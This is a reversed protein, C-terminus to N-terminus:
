LSLTDIQYEDEEEETEPLFTLTAPEDTIIHLRNGYDNGKLDFAIDWEPIKNGEEITQVGIMWGASRGRMKLADAGCSYIGTVIVGVDKATELKFQIPYGSAANDYFNRHNVCGFNDDSYGEFTYTHKTSM